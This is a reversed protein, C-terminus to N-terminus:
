VLFELVHQKTASENDVIDVHWIQWTNNWWWTVLLSVATFRLTLLGFSTKCPFSQFCSAGKWKLMMTVFMTKIMLLMRLILIVVSLITDYQSPDFSCQTHTFSTATKVCLQKWVLHPKWCLQQHMDIWYYDRLIFDCKFHLAVTSIDLVHCQCQSRKVALGSPSTDTSKLFESEIPSSKPWITDCTSWLM